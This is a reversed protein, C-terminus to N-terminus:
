LHAHPLRELYNCAFVDIQILSSINTTQKYFILNQKLAGKVSWLCLM